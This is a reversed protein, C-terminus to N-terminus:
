KVTFRDGSRTINLYFSRKRAPDPGVVFVMKNEPMNTIPGDYENGFFSTAELSVSAPNAAIAEKVEKKSKPRNYNIYIGQAMDNRRLKEYPKRSLRKCEKCQRGM